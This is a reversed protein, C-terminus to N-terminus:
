FPLAGPFGKEGAATSPESRLREWAAHLLAWCMCPVASPPGARPFPHSLGLLFWGCCSFSPRMKGLFLM